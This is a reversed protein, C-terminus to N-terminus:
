IKIFKTCESHNDSEVKLIYIGTNLSSIDLTLVQQGIANPFVHKLVVLGKIDYVTLSTSKDSISGFTVTLNNIAPNPSVSLIDSKYENKIETQSPIIVSKNFTIQKVSSELYSNSSGFKTGITVFGNSFRIKDIQALEQSCSDNKLTVKMITQASVTTVACILILLSIQIKKYYFM